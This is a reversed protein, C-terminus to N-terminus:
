NSDSEDSENESSNYHDINIFSNSYLSNYLTPLPFYIKLFGCSRWNVYQIIGWQNIYRKYQTKEIILDIIENPLNNNLNLSKFYLILVKNIYDTFCNYQSQTFLSVISGKKICKKSFICTTRYNTLKLRLDNM